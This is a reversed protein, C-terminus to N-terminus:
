FFINEITPKLNMRLLVKMSDHVDHADSMSVDIHLEPMSTFFFLEDNYIISWSIFRIIHQYM